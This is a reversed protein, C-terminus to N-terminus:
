KLPKYIFDLFEIASLEMYYVVESILRTLYNYSIYAIIGVILGGVTTLMAEYIGGSLMKPSVAGEQQAISMFASIMGTVTGLFGLMPGAGSITALTSMNKELRFVELKGANEIAKEVSERDQTLHQIGKILIRGMPTQSEECVLLARNIDGAEVAMKVKDLMETPVKRARTIYRYREVFVYVAIILMALLGHMFWGGQLYLDIINISEQVKPSALGEVIEEESPNTQLFIYAFCLLYLM